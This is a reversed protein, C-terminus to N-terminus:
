IHHTITNKKEFTASLEIQKQNLHIISKEGKLYSMNEDDSLGNNPLLNKQQIENLTEFIIQCKIFHKGVEIIEVEIVRGM